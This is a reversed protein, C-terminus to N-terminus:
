RAVEVPATLTFTIVSESPLVAPDGRTALVVGTGAGGGTAAGIAAGKGGGAIAGIAAGVGAGIGIKAADKGKTQRAVVGYANTNIPLLTGNSTTVGTLRVSMSAVGKVRGGPDSDAVVGRVEAGAPALVRNGVALPTTLHAIFPEGTQATKTSLATTTRVSIPHGAPIVTPPAPAIARAVPTMGPTAAPAGGAPNAANKLEAEKTQPGTGTCGSTLLAITTLTAVAFYTKRM